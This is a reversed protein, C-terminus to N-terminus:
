CAISPGVERMCSMLLFSFVILLILDIGQRYLPMAIEPWYFHAREPYQVKKYDDIKEHM